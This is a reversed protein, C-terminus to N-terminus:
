VTTPAGLHSSAKEEMGSGFNLGCAQMPDCTLAFSTRLTDKVFLPSKEAKVYFMKQGM